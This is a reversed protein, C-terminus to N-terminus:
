DAPTFGRAQWESPTFTHMSLAHIDTSMLQGLAGFVLRQAAIRSLGRFQDSVIVVEFHGGGEAAGPHGAHAASHDIVEIHTADLGTELLEHIRAARLTPDM